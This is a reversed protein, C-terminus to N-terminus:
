SCERYVTLCTLPTYYYDKHNGDTIRRTSTTRKYTQRHYTVNLRDNPRDFEAYAM